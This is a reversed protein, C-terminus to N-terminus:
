YYSVTRTGPPRRAGLRIRLKIIVGTRRLEPHSWRGNENVVPSLIDQCVGRLVNALGSEVTHVVYTMMFDAAHILDEDITTVFADFFQHIDQHTM